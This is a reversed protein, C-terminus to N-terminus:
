QVVVLINSTEALANVAVEKEDSNGAQRYGPNNRWLYDSLLGRDQDNFNPNQLNTLYQLFQKRTDASHYESLFNNIKAASYTSLIKMSTTIAAVMMIQFPNVVRVPNPIHSSRISVHVDRNEGVGIVEDIYSVGFGLLFIIDRKSKTDMSAVDHAPDFM